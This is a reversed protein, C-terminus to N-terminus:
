LPRRTAATSALLRPSSALRRTHAATRPRGTSLSVFKGVLAGTAWLGGCADFFASLQAPARGYRTPAGFIVGDVERLDDPTLVPYKPNLSGGGHMKTLIEESLTEKSDLRDAKYGFVRGLHRLECAIPSSPLALPRSM